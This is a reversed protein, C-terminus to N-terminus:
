SRDRDPRPRIVADRDPGGGRMVDTRSSPNASLLGDLMWFAAAFFALVFLFFAWDGAITVLYFVGLLPPGYRLAHSLLALPGAPARGRAREFELWAMITFNLALYAVALAIPLPM